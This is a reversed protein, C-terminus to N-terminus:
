IRDWEISFCIGYPFSTGEPWGRPIHSYSVQDRRLTLDPLSLLFLRKRIGSRM